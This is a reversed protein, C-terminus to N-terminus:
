DYAIGEICLVFAPESINQLIYNLDPLTDKGGYFIAIPTEIQKTPYRPVQYGHKEAGPLVAPNDDFMQFVGTKMIQFWHVKNLMMVVCKVSTYSYLHRYTISKHNMFESNWGFLGWMCIDLIWSFTQPTFISQWFPLSTLLSRRGFLLFIVDPSANVLSHITKNDLGLPKTSPALAIFLNVKKNLPSNLSLSSFGLASGQSFGIYSLSPSGTVKLIYDVTDPVDFLALQDMSFDWFAEESPKLSRHKCSYKNGGPNVLYVPTAWGCM